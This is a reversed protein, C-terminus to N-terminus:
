GRLVALRSEREDRKTLNKMISTAYAFVDRIPEGQDLARATLQWAKIINDGSHDTKWIAFQRPTLKHEPFFMEWVLFAASETTFRTKSVPVFVQPLHYRVAVDDWFERTFDVRYSDGPGSLIFGLRSVLAVYEATRLLSNIADIQPTLTERFAEVAASFTMAGERASLFDLFAKEDDELRISLELRKDNEQKTGTNMKNREGQM